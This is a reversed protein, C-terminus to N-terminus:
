NWAKIKKNSKQDLLFTFARRRGASALGRLPFFNEAPASVLRYVFDIESIEGM